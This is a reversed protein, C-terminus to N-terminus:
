GSTQSDKADNDIDKPPMNLSTMLYKLAIDYMPVVLEADIPFPTDYFDPCTEEGAPCNIQAISAPDEFLSNFLIKELKTNHIVYLYGDHIFWGPKPQKDTLSYKALKSSTV